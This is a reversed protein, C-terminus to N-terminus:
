PEDVLAAAQPVWGLAGGPFEVQLWGGRRHLLRAEMGRHLEPLHENPPYSRGNGRCLATGDRTIVVLPSRADHRARATLYTWLGAAAVALALLVAAGSLGRGDSAMLGRTVAICALAYLLFAALLFIGRDLRPVLFPWPSGAPRVRNDPGYHVQDRAYDLNEALDADHPAVRLGRRYALIAEPLEGALLHANGANRYLDANDAGRGRLLGYCRAAEAFDPRAKDPDARKAVGRRFAAEAKQLLEGDTPDSAGVGRPLAALALVSLLSVLRV